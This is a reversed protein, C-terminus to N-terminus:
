FVPQEDIFVRIFLRKLVEVSAELLDALLANLRRIRAYLENLRYAAGAGGIRAIKKAQRNLTKVEAEIHQKLKQQIVAPEPIAAIAQDRPSIRKPQQGSRVMAGAAGAGGLDASVDEGARESVRNTLGDITDLLQGLEALKAPQRVILKQTELGSGAGFGKEPSSPVM